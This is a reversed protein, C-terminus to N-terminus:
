NACPILNELLLLVEEGDSQRVGWVTRDLVLVLQYRKGQSASHGVIDGPAFPKPIIPKAKRM